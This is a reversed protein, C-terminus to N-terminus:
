ASRRLSQMLLKKAIKVGCRHSSSVKVSIIWTIREIKSFPLPMARILTSNQYLLLFTGMLKASEFRLARVKFIVAKKYTAGSCLLVDYRALDCVIAWYCCHIIVGFKTHTWKFVSRTGMNFPTTIPATSKEAIKLSCRHSPSVKVDVIESIWQIKSFPLLM